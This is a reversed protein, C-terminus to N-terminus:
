ELLDLVEQSTVPTGFPFKIEDEEVVPRTRFQTPDKKKFRTVNDFNKLFQDKRFNPNLRRMRTMYQTEEYTGAQKPVQSMYDSSTDVRQTEQSPMTPAKGPLDEGKKITTTTTETTGEQIPSPDFGEEPVPIGRDPENYFSSVEGSIKSKVAQADQNSTDNFKSVTFPYLENIAEVETKAGEMMKQQIMYKLVVAHDNLKATNQFWNIVFSTQEETFPRLDEDIYKNTLLQEEQEDTLGPLEVGLEKFAMYIAPSMSSVNAQALGYSPSLEDEATNVFLTGDVRSEYGLIPVVYEVIEQSIGANQLAVIVEYSSYSEQEM